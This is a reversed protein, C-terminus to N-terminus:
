KRKVGPPPVSKPLSIGPPAPVFILEDWKESWALFDYGGFLSAVPLLVNRLLSYGIVDSLSADAPTPGAEPIVGSSFKLGHFPADVTRILFCNFFGTMGNKWWFENSEIEARHEIM